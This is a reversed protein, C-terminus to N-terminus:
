SYAAFTDSILYILYMQFHFLCHGTFSTEWTTTWSQTTGPPLTKGASLHMKPRRDCSPWTSASSTPQSTQKSPMLVLCVWVEARPFSGVRMIWISQMCTWHWERPILILCRLCVLQVLITSYLTSKMLELSLVLFYLPISLFMTKPWSSICSCRNSIIWYLKRYHELGCMHLWGSVQKPNKWWKKWQETYCATISLYRCFYTLNITCTNNTILIMQRVRYSCWVVRLFSQGWLRKTTCAYGVQPGKHHLTAEARGEVLLKHNNPCQIVLCRACVYTFRLKGGHLSLCKFANAVTSFM